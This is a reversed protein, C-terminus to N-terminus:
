RHGQQQSRLLIAVLERVVKKQQLDLLLYDSFLLQEERKEPSGPEGSGARGHGAEGFRLWAASVGAWDALVQLRAQTPLSEGMLWKRVAHVTIPPEDSHANFQHALEINGTVGMQDM